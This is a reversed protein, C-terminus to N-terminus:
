SVVKSAQYLEARSLQHIRFAGASSVLLHLSPHVGASTALLTLLGSQPSLLSSSLSQFADSANLVNSGFIIVDSGLMLFTTRHTKVCNANLKWSGISSNSVYRRISFFRSSIIMIQTAQRQIKLESSGNTTANFFCVVPLFVIPGIVCRM